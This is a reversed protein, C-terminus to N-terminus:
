MQTTGFAGVRFAIRSATEALTDNSINVESRDSIYKYCDCGCPPDRAGIADCDSWGKGPKKLREDMNM